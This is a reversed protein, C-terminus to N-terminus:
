QYGGGYPNNYSSPDTFISGIAGIIGAILNGVGYGLGIGANVLGQGFVEKAGYIGSMPRYPYGATLQGGQYQQQQQQQPQQQNPQYNNIAPFQQFPSLLPPFLAGFFPRSFVNRLFLVVFFWVNPFRM